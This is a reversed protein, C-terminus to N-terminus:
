PNGLSKLFQLCKESELHRSWASFCYITGDPSDLFISFLKSIKDLIKLM